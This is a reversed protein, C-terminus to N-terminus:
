PTMGTHGINREQGKCIVVSCSVSMCHGEALGISSQLPITGGEHSSGVERVEVELKELKEM